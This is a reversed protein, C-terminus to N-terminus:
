SNFTDLCFISKCDQCIFYIYNINQKILIKRYREHYEHIELWELFTIDIEYTPEIEEDNNDDM